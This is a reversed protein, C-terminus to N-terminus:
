GSASDDVEVRPGMGEAFHLYNTQAPPALATGVEEAESLIKLYLEERVALFENWSSTNVYAYIELDLSHPGVAVLRVCAPDEDVLEHGLLLERLRTLVRQLQETTM